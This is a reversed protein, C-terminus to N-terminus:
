CFLDFCNFDIYYKLSLCNLPYIRKSLHNGIENIFNYKHTFAYLQRKFVLEILKRRVCWMNFFISAQIDIELSWM